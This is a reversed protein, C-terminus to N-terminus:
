HKEQLFSSKNAWVNGLKKKEVGNGLKNLQHIMYIYSKTNSETQDDNDRTM